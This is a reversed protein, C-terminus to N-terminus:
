QMLERGNQEGYTITTDEIEGRKACIVHENNM